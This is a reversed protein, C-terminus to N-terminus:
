YWGHKEAKTISRKSGKLAATAVQSSLLKAPLTMVADATAHHLPGYIQLCTLGQDLAFTDSGSSSGSDAVGRM